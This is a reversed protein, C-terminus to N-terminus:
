SGCVVSGVLSCLGQCVGAPRGELPIPHEARRGIKADTARVLSLLSPLNMSQGSFVRMGAEAVELSLPDLGFKQALQNVDIQGDPELLPAGFRKGDHSFWVFPDM